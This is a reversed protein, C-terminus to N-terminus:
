TEEVVGRPSKPAFVVGGKRARRGAAWTLETGWSDGIEYTFWVDTLGALRLPSSKCWVTELLEYSM